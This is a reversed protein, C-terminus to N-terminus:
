IHTIKHSKGDGLMVDESGDYKSHLSLNQLDQTVHHSAGSDVLWNPYANTSQAAFNAKPQQDNSRNFNSSSGNPRTSTVGNGNRNSPPFNKQNSRSNNTGRNSNRNTSAPPKAAFNAMIPAVTQSLRRTLHDEFDTLKDHLEQFTIVTERARLASVISDYESPIGHVVHLFVEDASIHVGVSALKTCIKMIHARSPKAYTTALNQWLAYSTKDDTVFPIIKPSLSAVMASRILHGQRKYVSIATTSLPENIFQLFDYAALLTEWQYQWSQYNATTLKLPAQAAANISILQDNNNLSITNNSPALVNSTTENTPNPLSDSTNNSPAM